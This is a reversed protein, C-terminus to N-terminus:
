GRVEFVMTYWDFYFWGCISGTASEPEYGFWRVGTESFPRLEALVCDLPLGATLDSRQGRRDYHVLNGGEPLLDHQHLGEWGANTGERCFGELVLRGGPRVVRALNSVCAEPHSAHDIANGSYAIDYAAPAVVSLLSEGLGSIPAVPHSVAYRRLLEAYEQALPDVATLDFWGREVGSALLSFPGSGLELVSPKRRYQPRIEALCARMADPFVAARLGADGICRPYSAVYDEWFRLESAFDPAGTERAARRGPHRFLRTLAALM